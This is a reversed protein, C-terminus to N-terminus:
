TPAKQRSPRGPLRIMQWGCCVPSRRREISTARYHGCDPCFWHESYRDSAADMACDVCVGDHLQDVERRCDDCTM